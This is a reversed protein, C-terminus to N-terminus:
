LDEIKPLFSRVEEGEEDLEVVEEEERAVRLEGVLDSSVEKLFRSPEHFMLSDVGSTLPYTLVLQRKARTSAVYFLRREEEEGGDERLARPNPFSEEVLRIVFVTHWELGKAQHITSLIIREDDKVGARGREVGIDGVLTVESLFSTLSKSNEAFLAFQELDDLRDKANPYEAELYDQYSSSIISRVLEAPDNPDLNLLKSLIQKTEEFGHQARAPINITEYGNQISDSRGGPDLGPNSAGSHCNLVQEIIKGAIGPGIGEQLTLIRMWAIKDDQNAIIKLYAIVDKIHAREFFRVGGRYEYPIDRKTLEFELNQSHHAARFLVAIENLPVGEDRLQLVMSAILEAEEATNRCVALNPIEGRDRITTLEKEYQELNQKIVDNAFDLIGQTSRYNTELRMIRAKPFDKPFRLINKIDAARFSYISQADDGVALMNGHQGALIKVIDAQLRNTDQYEDVLIYKFKDSLRKQVSEFSCLLNRFHWLLDDFDMVGVARKGERYRNAIDKIQEILPYFNTYREEIVEELPRDANASFSIMDQLVSPSPFRREKTEIGAEKLCSKIFDRSDEQDLITFDARFGIQKYFKRLFLNAAHHFTGGVLGKIDRRLLADVRELMERAAKNTFTLLLIEEPKVGHELLWAVRYVITRTKGTGAGALVLCPGEAGKVVALQEPNLEKQYNIALECQPQRDKLVITRFM